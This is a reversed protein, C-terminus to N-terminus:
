GCLLLTSIVPPSSPYTERTINLSTAPHFLRTITSSGIDLYEAYLASLKRLNISRGATATSLHIPPSISLLGSQHHFLSLFLRPHATSSSIYCLQAKLARVWRCAALCSTNLIMGRRVGSVSVAVSVSVSVSVSVGFMRATSLCCIM